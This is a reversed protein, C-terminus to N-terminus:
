GALPLWEVRAWRQQLAAGSFLRGRRRAGCVARAAAEQAGSGRRLWWGDLLDGRHLVAHASRAAVGRLRPLWIVLQVRAAVLRREVVLGGLWQGPRRVFLAVELAVCGCRLWLSALWLRLACVWSHVVVAGPM